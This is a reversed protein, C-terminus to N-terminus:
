AVVGRVVQVGPALEAKTRELPQAGAEDPLPRAGVATITVELTPREHLRRPVADGDAPEPEVRARRVLDEHERDARRELRSFACAARKARSSGGIRCKCQGSM